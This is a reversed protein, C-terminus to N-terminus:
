NSQTTPAESPPGNSLGLDARFGFLMFVLTAMALPFSYMTLRRRIRSSTAGAPSKGHKMLDLQPQPLLTMGMALGLYSLVLLLVVVPFSFLLAGLIYKPGLWAGVSAVLKVDCGGVIGFFWLAFYISFGFAFGATAFLVGDAIGAAPSPTAFAWSPLGQSELWAYRIVNFVIGLFLTGITVSKPVTMRKLDTWSAAALFATLVLVFAWGFLADPFFRVM